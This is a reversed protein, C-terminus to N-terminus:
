NGCQQGSTVLLHLDVTKNVSILHQLGRRQGAVYFKDMFVITAVHSAPGSLLALM